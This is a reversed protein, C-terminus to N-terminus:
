PHPCAGTEMCIGRRITSERVRRGGVEFSSLNQLFTVPAETADGKEDFLKLEASVDNTIGEIVSKAYLHVPNRGYICSGDRRTAAKSGVCDRPPAYAEMIQFASKRKRRIYATRTNRVIARAAWFGTKFATHHDSDKGLRGKWGFDKLCWYNNLKMCRVTKHRELQQETIILHSIAESKWNNVLRSELDYEPGALGSQSVVTALVLTALRM